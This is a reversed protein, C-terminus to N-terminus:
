TAVPVLTELFDKFEKCVQQDKSGLLALLDQHALPDKLGLNGPQDRRDLSVRIVQLDLHEPSGLLVPHELAELQDRLDLAELCAL